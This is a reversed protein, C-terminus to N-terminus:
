VHHLIRETLELLQEVDRLSGVSAPSHINRLACALGLCPVGTGSIHIRGADTGGAIRRKTQWPIGAEEATRRALATLAPDYLTGGDQFPIVVGGGVTCIEQGPPVDPLDAATTGEVVIAADPQIRAVAPGAGRTGLEEQVTFAFWADRPLDRRLLALLVACGLRDDLAKARILGGPMQELPGAFSVLDGPQVLAEAENRGGAGIDICLQEVEPARREGPAAPPLGIVGPLAGQGVEVRKGPLVRRDIGGVCAFRLLGAQTIDTVILGVEDMHAALMLTGKGASAGKKYVLLNGLADTRLDDAFLEAQARLYESVPEEGGSVGRLACLERLLELM